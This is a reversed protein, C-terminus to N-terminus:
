EEASIDIMDNSTEVKDWTEAKDQTKTTKEKTVVKKVERTTYGCATCTTENLNDTVRGCHPCERRRDKRTIM